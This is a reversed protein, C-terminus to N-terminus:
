PWAWDFHKLKCILQYYKSGWFIWGLSTWCRLITRLSTNYGHDKVMAHVHVHIQVAVTKNDHIKQEVLAGIWDNNQFPLRLWTKQCHQWNGSVKEIQKYSSCSQRKDFTRNCVMSVSLLICLWRVSYILVYCYYAYMYASLPTLAQTRKKRACVSIAYARRTHKQPKRLLWM